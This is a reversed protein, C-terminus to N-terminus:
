DPHSKGACWPRPGKWVTGETWTFGRGVAEQQGESLFILEQCPRMTVKETGAERAGPEGRGGKQAWQGELGVLKGLGTGCLPESYAVGEEQFEGGM